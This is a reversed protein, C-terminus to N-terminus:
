KSAKSKAALRRRVDGAIAPTAIATAAWTPYYGIQQGDFTVLSYALDEAKPTGPSRVGFAMLAEEIATAVEVATACLLAATSSLPKLLPCAAAVGGTVTHATDLPLPCSSFGMCSLALAVVFFISRAKM